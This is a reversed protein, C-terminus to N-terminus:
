AERAASQARLGLPEIGVISLPPCIRGTEQRRREARRELVGDFFPRRAELTADPGRTVSLM